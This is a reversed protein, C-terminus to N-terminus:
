SYSISADVSGFTPLLGLRVLKVIELKTSCSDIVVPLPLPTAFALMSAM